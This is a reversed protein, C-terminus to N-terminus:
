ERTPPQAMLRVESPESREAAASEDRDDDTETSSEEVDAFLYEQGLPCWYVALAEASSHGSASLGAGSFRHPLASNIFCSDGAILDQTVPRGHLVTSLTVEGNLVYVFEEGLHEHLTVGEADHIRAYCPYMRRGTLGSALLRLEAAEPGLHREARIPQRDIDAARVISYYPPAVFVGATFFDLPRRCRICIKLLLDIPLPRRGREIESLRRASIGLDRAFEGLSLGRATRAGTIRRAVLAATTQTSEDRFYIAGSGDAAQDLEVFHDGSCHLHISNAPTASTSRIIHPLHSWFHMSDLPGLKERILGTPTRLLCELEGKLVVFFEEHHHSIFSLRDDPVPLAEIYIPDMHKGVFPEALPRLRNHYHTLNGSGYDVLTLTASAQQLVSRSSVYFHTSRSRPLLREASIGLAAALRELRALDLRGKDTEIESLSTVSMGARAALEHLPWGNGKREARIRDGIGLAHKDPPTTDYYVPL